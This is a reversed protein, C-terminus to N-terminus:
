ANKSNQYRVVWAAYIALVIYTLVLLIFSNQLGFRDALVGQLEPIVAGGVISTCLVGSVRSKLSGMGELSIAFITPFMISNFLGLSLICWMSVRGDLIISMLVLTANILAYNRVLRAPNLHRLLWSGIFRGILAGGWFFSLYHAANIKPMDAINPLHLYNVILSGASVETGVYVFIAVAGFVVGPYHWVSHKGPKPINTHSSQNFKPFPILMLAVMFVVLVVIIGAYSAAISGSIIAVGLILPILTTGLSNLAQAFNLRSSAYIPNGLLTVLPNAAVQLCVIGSALIFLGILFVSYLTIYSAFIFFGCGIAAIFLGLVIGKKYGIRAILKSAPISALAYTLFFCFQVLMVETYNLQFKAKLNPVLLDNLCTLAGWMFFVVSMLSMIFKNNKIPQM